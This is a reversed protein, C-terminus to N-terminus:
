KVTASASGTSFSTVSNSNPTNQIKTWGSTEAIGYGLSGNGAYNFTALGYSLGYSGNNVIAQHNALGTGYVTGQDAVYGSFGVTKAGAAAFNPTDVYGAITYGGALAGAGDAGIAIAPFIPDIGWIKGYSETFSGGSFIAGTTNKGGAFTGTGNDVSIGNGQVVEGAYNIGVSAYDPNNFFSFKDIGLGYGAGAVYVGAIAGSAGIGFSPTQIGAAGGIGFATGTAFSTANASKTGQAYSTVDISGVAGVQWGGLANGLAIGSGNFVPVAVAVEQVTQLVPPVAMAPIAMALVLILALLIKKM